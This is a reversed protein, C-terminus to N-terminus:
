KTADEVVSRYLFRLGVYILLGLSFSNLLNVAFDIILGQIRFQEFTKEKAIVKNMQQKRIDQLVPTILPRAPLSILVQATRWSKSIEESKNEMNQYIRTPEDATKILADSVMKGMETGIQVSIYHGTISTLIFHIIM